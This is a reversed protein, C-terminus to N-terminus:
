STRRNQEHDLEDNHSFVEYFEDEKHFTSEMIPNLVGQILNPDNSAIRNHYQQEIGVQNIEVNDM